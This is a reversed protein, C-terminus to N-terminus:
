TLLRQKYIITFCSNLFFFFPLVNVYKLFKCLESLITKTTVTIDQLVAFFIYSILKRKTLYNKKYNKKEMAWKLYFFTKLVVQVIYWFFYSFSKQTTEHQPLSVSYRLNIYVAFVVVKKFTQLYKNCQPSVCCLMLLKFMCISPALPRPIYFNFVVNSPSFINM